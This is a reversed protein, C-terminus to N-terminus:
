LKTMYQVIIASGKMYLIKNVRYNIINENNWKSPKIRTWENGLKNGTTYIEELYM